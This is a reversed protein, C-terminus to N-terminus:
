GISYVSQKSYFGPQINKRILTPLDIADSACRAIQRVQPWSRAHRRHTRIRIGRAFSISVANGESIRAIVTHLGGSQGKRILADMLKRGVGRGRSEEKIYVSIEATDAYACRDSWQSLSAWGVVRDNQEAVVIPYKSSHTDFWPKQEAASKPETDFTAVTTLIAENYIDTIAPLDETTADRIIMAGNTM